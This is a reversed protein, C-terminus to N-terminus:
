HPDVANKPHGPSNEHGSHVHVKGRHKGPNKEPDKGGHMHNVSIDKKNGVAVTTRKSWGGQSIEKGEHQKLWETFNLM